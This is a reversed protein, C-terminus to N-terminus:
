HFMAMLGLIIVTLLGMVVLIEVLSFARRGMETSHGGGRSSAPARQPPGATV